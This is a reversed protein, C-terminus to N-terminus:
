GRWGGTSSICGSWGAGPRRCRWASCCCRPSARAARREAPAAEGGRRRDPALGAGGRLRRDGRADPLPGPAAGRLRGRLVAEPRGAGALPPLGARRLLHQVAARVPELRHLSLHPDAGAGARQLVLGAKVKEVSGTQLFDTGDRVGLGRARVWNGIIANTDNEALLTMVKNAVDFAAMKIFPIQEESSIRIGAPRGGSSATSPSSRTSASSPARCWCSASAWATCCCWTRSWSRSIPHGIIDCDIKIVFTGGKFRDIYGFVERILDVQEKLRESDM